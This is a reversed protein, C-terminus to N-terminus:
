NEGEGELEAIEAEVKACIVIVEADEAAAFEKVRQVHENQEIDLLEDEGVNAAYLM